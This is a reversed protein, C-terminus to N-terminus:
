RSALRRFSDLLTIAAGLFGLGVVALTSAGYGRTAQGLLVVGYLVGISIGLIEASRHHRLIGVGAVVSPAAVLFVFPAIARGLYLGESQPANTVGIGIAAVLLGLGLLILGGIKALRGGPLSLTEVARDHAEGSTPDLPGERDDNRRCSTSVVDLTAM